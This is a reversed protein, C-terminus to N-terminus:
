PLAGMALAIAGLPGADSGLAPARVYHAGRPLEVYGNLSEILTAEIRPLLHPQGDIMGGGIAIARPAAACVIVHCLQALASVVSQWVPDEPAV